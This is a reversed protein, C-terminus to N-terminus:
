LLLAIRGLDERALLDPALAVRLRIRAGVERGQLRARDLVALVPHDVPLLHPGREGVDGVVHHQEGAGVRVHGLVLADGIEEEVHLERADRHLGEPLDGALGLEVLDEEVVDAHVLRLPQATPSVVKIYSRSVRPQPSCIRRRIASSPRSSSAFLISFLPRTTVFSGTIRWFSACSQISVSHRLYVPARAIVLSRRPSIGPGSAEVPFIAHTSVCWRRCSSAISISPGYECSQFPESHAISPPTHGCDKRRERALEISPPVVSIWFFMM